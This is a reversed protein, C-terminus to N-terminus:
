VRAPEVWIDVQGSSMALGTTHSDCRRVGSAGFGEAHLLDEALYGPALCIAPFHVLRIKKVEPPLDAAAARPVSLVSAAGLVSASSLFHRRSEFATVM